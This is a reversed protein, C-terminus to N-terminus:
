KPYRKKMEKMDAKIIKKLVILDIDDLKNVNLCSVTHKFKGLKKLEEEYANFGTMIYITMNSKRPSFGTRMWTGKCGSKSVYDYSGYGVISNSWLKPKEGTAEEFLTLLTLSDKKRQENELSNIFDLPSDSTTKTKIEYGM